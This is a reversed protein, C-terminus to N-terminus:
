REQETRDPRSSDGGQGGRIGDGEMWESHHAKGRAQDVRQLQHRDASEVSPTLRLPECLHGPECLHWPRWHLRCPTCENTCANHTTCTHRRRDEARALCGQDGRAREKQEPPWVQARVWYSTRRERSWWMARAREGTKPEFGVIPLREVSKPPSLGMRRKKPRRRMKRCRVGSSGHASSKVATSLM